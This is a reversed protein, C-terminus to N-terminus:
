VDTEDNIVQTEIRLPMLVVEKRIGELVITGEGEPMVTVTDDFAMALRRLPSSKRFVMEGGDKERKLSFGSQHFARIIAERDSSVDAAVRRSAFGYRPYIFALVLVAAILLWGRASSFMASLYFEASVRAYGTVFLLAYIVAIIVMWKIFFRLARAIYQKAKMAIQKQLHVSKKIEKHILPM